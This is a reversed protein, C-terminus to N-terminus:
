GEFYIPNSILAPLLPLGPLFSRLIEIRAFGPAPMSYNGQMGGDTEAKLLPFNGRPTVVQVVDGALLGTIRFELQKIKLFEISDGLISDGASLELTPGSASYTIFAHGLKLASLIDSPSSSMAYVCTTPGGPFLLLSDRHYDSGGCIAVKKGSLLLSHWLGVAQLNSGRMPGNWVEFCDYPLADLDFLFPCVPDCPHNICIFAGREQASEFRSHVEALTNALFPEDYPQDVGLFNAHGQYHTWEIGPILTLGGIKPLADASVVQNHDTIALYDLGNSQAHRALEDVQLVGDSALTHTHLDGKFLRMTKATFCLEYVVNVGDPDVKYAGVIIQWEGPVLAYSHYGPTATTESIFISLKDSGSAGVQAGDPGILGLDIINIEKRSIFHGNEVLSESEHHREYRYTLSFSGTGAPMTFPLTFYTGQRSHDIFLPIQVHTELPKNDM